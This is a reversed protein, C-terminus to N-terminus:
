TYDVCKTEMEDYAKKIQPTIYEFGERGKIKISCHLFKECLGKFTGWYSECIIRKDIMDSNWLDATLTLANLARAIDPLILRTEDTLDVDNVSQWATWFEVVKDGQQARRALNNAQEAILNAKEDVRESKNMALISVVLSGFALVASGLSIWDATLM